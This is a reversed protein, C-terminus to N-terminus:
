YGFPYFEYKNGGVLKLKQEGVLKTIYSQLKENDDGALILQAMFDNVQEDYEMQFARLEARKEATMAAYEFEKDYDRTEGFYIYHDAKGIIKGTVPDKLSMVEINILKDGVFNGIQDRYGGVNLTNLVDMDGYVNVLTADASNINALGINSLNTLKTQIGTEELTLAVAEEIGKWVVDTLVATPSMVLALKNFFVDIMHAISDGIVPILSFFKEFLGSVPELASRQVYELANGLLELADRVQTIDSLAGGAGIIAATPVNSRNIAELLPAFGGSYGVGVIPRSTADEGAEKRKNYFNNIETEIKNVIGLRHGPVQSEAIFWIVDKGRNGIKGLLRLLFWNWYTSPTLIEDPTVQYNSKEQLDPKLGDRYYKAIQNDATAFLHNAENNIGNSLLYFPKVSTSSTATTSVQTKGLDVEVSKLEGESIILDTIMPLFRILINWFSVGSKDNDEQSGDIIIPGSGNEPKFEFIRAGNIDTINGGYFQGNQVEAAFVLGGSLNAILSGALLGWKGLQTQGFTGLQTVGNEKKGIFLV